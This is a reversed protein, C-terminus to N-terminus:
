RSIPHLDPRCGTCPRLGTAEARERSGFLTLRARDASALWHCTPLCYEQGPARVYMSERVIRFDRAAKVTPVGEVTLLRQKLGIRNGAYGTLFGSAGVVRHCPVVIPV